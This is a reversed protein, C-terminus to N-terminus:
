YTPALMRAVRMIASDISEFRTAMPRCAEVDEGFFRWRVLVRESVVFPNEHRWTAQYASSAFSSRRRRAASFTRATRRPSM